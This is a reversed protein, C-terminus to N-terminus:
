AMGAEARRQSKTTGDGEDGEDLVVELIDATLVDQGLLGRSLARSNTRSKTECLVYVHAADSLWTIYFGCLYPGGNVNKEIIM